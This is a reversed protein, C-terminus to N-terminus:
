AGRKRPRPRTTDRRRPLDPPSDPPTTDRTGNSDNGRSDESGASNEPHNNQSRPVLGPLQLNLLARVGLTKKQPPRENRPSDGGDSETSPSTGGGSSKFSTGASSEGASSRFSGSTGNRGSSDRLSMQSSRSGLNGRSRRARSHLAGFDAFSMSSAGIKNPWDDHDSDRRDALQPAQRDQLGMSGSPM